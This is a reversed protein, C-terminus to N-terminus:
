SPANRMAMSVCVGSNGTIKGSVTFRSCWLLTNLKVGPLHLAMKKSVMGTSPKVISSRGTNFSLTYTLISFANFPM